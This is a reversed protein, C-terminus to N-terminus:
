FNSAAPHEGPRAAQPLPRSDALRPAEGATKNRDRYVGPPSAHTRGTERATNADPGHLATLRVPTTGHEIMGLEKAAQFSLDIVRDKVFPGRDNIRVVTERDNALNVVRVRTGFPLTRHAATASHMDFVEGSSTLRGHLGPGYWSATGEESYGEASALPTYVRGNVEYPIGGKGAPATAV